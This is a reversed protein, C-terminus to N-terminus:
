RPRLKCIIKAEANDAFQSEVNVYATGAIQYAGGPFGHWYGNELTRGGCMFNRTNLNPTIPGETQCGFHHLDGDIGVIKISVEDLAAVHLQQTRPLTTWQTKFESTGVLRANRYSFQCELKKGHNDGSSALALTSVLLSFVIFKVYSM